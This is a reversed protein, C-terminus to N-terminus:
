LNRILGNYIQALRTYHVQASHEKQAYELANKGMTRASQSNETMWLMAEILANLDGPPVLLGREQHAVLEAMGGLNSAIVPKGSAFAELISFPQNEYWLSPLVIARANTILARLADGQQFGVYKCNTPLEFESARAFSEDFTGALVVPLDTQRCAQLLIYIGKIQSLKGFYLIYGDDRDSFHFQEEPVFLPVHSIRSASFGREVLKVRLFESPTLFHNIKERVRMLRHAYAEISAMASAFLSGKKCRKLIPQYYRNTGCAECVQGTRDNLFHTNPCIMKYDHLTWVVPLGRSKAEFIISPTIHAHINQLHVTDPKFRELLQSFKYRAERSYIVRGLVRMGNAVSKNQNAERFDISSVFLDFNPDPLNRSDQMAFFAVQHGNQRLLNALNFTYTSDGGGLIHYTNVLLIRM